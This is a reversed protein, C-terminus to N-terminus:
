YLYIQADGRALPYSGGLTVADNRPPPLSRRVIALVSEAIAKGRDTPIIFTSNDLQPGMTTQTEALTTNISSAQFGATILGNVINTADNTRSDRYFVIVSYKNNATFTESFSNINPQEIKANGGNPANELKNLASTVTVNFNNQKALSETLKQIDLKMPAIALAFDGKADM